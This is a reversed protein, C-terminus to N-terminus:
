PGPQVGQPMDLPGLVGHDPGGDQSYVFMRILISNEGSLIEGQIVFCYTYDSIKNQWLYTTGCLYDTVIFVIM